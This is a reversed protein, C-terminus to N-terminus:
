SQRRPPPSPRHSLLHHPLPHRPHRCPPHETGLTIVTTVTPTLATPTITTSITATSITTTPLPNHPPPPSPPPSPARTLAARHIPMFTNFLGSTNIALLIALRHDLRHRPHAVEPRLDGRSPERRTWRRLPAALQSSRSLRHGHTRRVM